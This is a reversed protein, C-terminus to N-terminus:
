PHGIKELVKNVIIKADRTPRNSCHLAFDIDELAAMLEPGIKQWNWKQQQRETMM